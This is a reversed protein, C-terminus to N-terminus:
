SSLHVQSGARTAHALAELELAIPTGIRDLALWRLSKAMPDAAIAELSDQDNRMGNLSLAQLRACIPAAALLKVSAPLDEEFDINLKTLKLSSSAALSKAGALKLGTAYVDLDRLNTLHPSTALAKIGSNGIPNACIDLLTLNKLTPTDALQKAFKAGLKCDALRLEEMNELVPANLLAEGGKNGLGNGSLDLARLGAPFAGSDLMNQLTKAGIYSHTMGLEEIRQVLDSGLFSPWEKKTHNLSYMHLSTLAGFHGPAAMALVTSPLLSIHLRLERLAQAGSALRLLAQETISEPPAHLELSWLTEHALLRDVLELWNAPSIAQHCRLKLHSLHPEATLLADLEQVSPEQLFVFNRLARRPDDADLSHSPARKLQAPWRELHERAYEFVGADAEGPQAPLRELLALFLEQSPTEALLSRIHGFTDSM